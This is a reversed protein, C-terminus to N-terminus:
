RLKDKHRRLLDSLDQRADRIEERPFEESEEAEKLYSKLSDEIFDKDFEGLPADQLAYAWTRLERYFVQLDDLEYRSILHGLEKHAIEHAITEPAHRKHVLLVPEEGPVLVWGEIVPEGEPFYILRTM